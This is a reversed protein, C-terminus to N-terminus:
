IGRKLADAATALPLVLSLPADNSGSFLAIPVAVPLLGVYSPQCWKMYDVRGTSLFHRLMLVYGSEDVWPASGASWLIFAVGLFLSAAVVAPGLRQRATMDAQNIRPTEM